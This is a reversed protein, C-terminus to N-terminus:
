SRAPQRRHPRHPLPRRHLHRRWRVPGRTSRSSATITRHPATAPHFWPSADSPSRRTGLLSWAYDIRKFPYGIPVGCNARNVMGTFGEADGHLAPWADIYGADRLHSLGSADPTQSCAPQGEWANLDAILVHPETGGRSRLFEITQRGQRDLSASGSATESGMWHGAFVNMSRACAADLCVPARVIWMTDSPNPNLSTDLQRWEEPGAFGHRAVIAVGNQEGTRAKWGLAQRVREHSGCTTTWAEALGLAVVAPDNGVSATLHQQVFGVGWANLPQAPDTCNMNETFPASHGAVAQEGKGAQINFFAFKVTAATQGDVTLSFCACAAGSLLVPRLVRGWRIPM